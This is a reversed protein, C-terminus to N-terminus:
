ETLRVMINSLFTTMHRNQGSFFFKGLIGMKELFFFHFNIFNLCFYILLLFWLFFILCVFLVFYLFIFFFLLFFYFVLHLTTSGGRMSPDRAVGLLNPGKPITTLWGWGM